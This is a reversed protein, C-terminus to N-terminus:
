SRPTGDSGSHRSSPGILEAGVSSQDRPLRQQNPITARAVALQYLSHSLGPRSRVSSRTPGTIAESAADGDAEAELPVGLRALPEAGTAVLAPLEGAFSQHRLAVGADVVHRDFLRLAFESPGNRGGGVM